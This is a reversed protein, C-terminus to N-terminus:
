PKLLAKGGDKFFVESDLHKVCTDIDNVCIYGDKDVDMLYAIRQLEELQRSPDISKQLFESFRELSVSDAQKAGARQLFANTDLNNQEKFLEIKMVILKFPNHNKNGFGAANDAFQM